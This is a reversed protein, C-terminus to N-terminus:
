YVADVDDKILCKISFLYGEESEGINMVHVDEFNNIVKLNYEFEAISTRKDSLGQLQISNQAISLVQLYINQPLSSSIEEILRTNIKDTGQLKKIVKEAVNYYQNMVELKAKGDGVEKIKEITTPSSLYENMLKIEDNINEKQVLVWIEFGGIVIALAGVTVGIKMKKAVKNKRVEIYPSFFNIDKM